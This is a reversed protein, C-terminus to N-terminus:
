IIYYDGLLSSKGNYKYVYWCILDTDQNQYNQHLGVDNLDAWNCVSESVWESINLDKNKSAIASFM